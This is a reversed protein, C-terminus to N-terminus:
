FIFKGMKKKMNVLLFLAVLFNETVDLLRTPIGYHQLTLLVDIDSQIDKFYELYKQLAGEVIKHEKQNKYRSLSTTCPNDFKNGEGRYVYKKDKLDNIINM